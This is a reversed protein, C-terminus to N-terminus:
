QVTCKIKLISCVAKLLDIHEVIYFSEDIVIGNNICWENHISASSRSYLTDALAGVRDETVEEGLHKQVSEKFKENNQFLWIYKDKRSLKKKHEQAINSSHNM